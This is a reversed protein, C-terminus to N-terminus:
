KEKEESKDKGAKQMAAKVIEPMGKAMEKAVGGWPASAETNIEAFANAPSESWRFAREMEDINISGSKLHVFLRGQRLSHRREYLREAQDLMSKSYRWFGVAALVIFGYATFARVFGTTLQLWSRAFEHELAKMQWISIVAGFLVITSAVWRALKGSRQYSIAREELFGQAKEVFLDTVALRYAREAPHIKEDKCSTGDPTEQLPLRAISAHERELESHVQHERTLQEVIELQTHRM